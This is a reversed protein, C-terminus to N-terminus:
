CNRVRGFTSRAFGPHQPQNMLAPVHASTSDPTKKGTFECRTHHQLIYLSVHRRQVRTGGTGLHFQLHLASRHTFHIRRLLNLLDIYTVPPSHPLFRIFTQVYPQARKPDQFECM